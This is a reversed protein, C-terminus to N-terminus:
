AYQSLHGQTFQAMEAHTYTKNLYRHTYPTLAATVMTLNAPIIRRIDEMTSDFLNKVNTEVDINIRYENANVELNWNGEGFITNLKQRLFVETFPPMQALRNIVRARRFEVTDKLVDPIIGLIREYNRIGKIGATLIFNDLFSVKVSSNLKDFAPNLADAIAQMTDNGDYIRNIDLSM